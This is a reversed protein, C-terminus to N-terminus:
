KQNDGPKQTLQRELLLSAVMATTAKLKWYELFCGILRRWWVLGSATKFLDISDVFALRSYQQIMLLYERSLPNPAPRLDPALEYLRKQLLFDRIQQQYSNPRGPSKAM